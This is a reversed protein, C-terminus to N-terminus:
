KINEGFYLKLRQGTVKFTVNEFRTVEIAGHSFVKTM